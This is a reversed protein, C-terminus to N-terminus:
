LMSVAPIGPPKLVYLFQRMFFARQNLPAIRSLFPLSQLASGRRPNTEAKAVLGVHRSRNGPESRDRIVRMGGLSSALSGKVNKRSVYSQWRLRFSKGM